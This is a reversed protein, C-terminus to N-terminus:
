KPGITIYAKVYLEGLPMALMVLLFGVIVGLIYKKNMSLGGFEFIIVLHNILKYLKYNKLKRLHPSHMVLFGM